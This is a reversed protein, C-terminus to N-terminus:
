QVDFTVAGFVMNRLTETPIPAFVDQAERGIRDSLDLPADTTGLAILMQRTARPPGSRAVPADFVPINGDLTIFPALDQVVGNDDIVLLTVFLGGAGIVRGRLTDGSQLTANDLSLGIRNAPYSESQRLADLVACQRPDVFERTQVPAPDLGATIRNSLDGLVSDDAGVFSVGAGPAGGARRPLALTCQPNPVARIRRLLQGIAIDTDTLDQLPAAAALASEETAGTDQEPPTDDNLEPEVTPAIPEPDPLVVADVADDTEFPGITSPALVEPEPALLALSDPEAVIEPQLPAGSGGEALPSIFDDEILSLDDISLPQDALPTPEPQIEAIEPTLVEPAVPEPEALEPETLDQAVDPTLVEPDSTDPAIAEVPTIDDPAVETEPAIAEDMPETLDDAPADPELASDDPTLAAFDQELETTDIEQPLTAIADPPIRDDDIPDAEEVIEADLIELSVAFAADLSDAPQGQPLFVVAGSMMLAALAGHAATSIGMAGFWAEARPAAHPLFSM